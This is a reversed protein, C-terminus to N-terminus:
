NARNRLFVRLINTEPEEGEAVGLSLFQCGVNESGNASRGDAAGRQGIKQQNGAKLRQGPTETLGTKALRHIAHM